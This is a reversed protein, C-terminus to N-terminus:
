VLSLPPFRAIWDENHQNWIWIQRNATNGPQQAGDSVQDQNKHNQQKIGPWTKGDYRGLRVHTVAPPVKHRTMKVFM